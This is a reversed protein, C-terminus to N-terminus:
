GKFNVDLDNIDRFGLFVPFRPKDKMGEAQYKYKVLKGLLSEKTLWYVERQKQNFGTGIEFEIGTVCDRVILNGLTNSGSLNEKSHSRKTLGLNDKKAENNNHMLENFGIVFAESDKFQKLKLLIGEKETSRGFKYKGDISRVMLGEFGQDLFEKEKVLLENLDNVIYSGIVSIKGTLLHDEVKYLIENYRDSYGKDILFNDFIVYLFDPEGDESMIESSVQNFENSSLLILEGDLGDPINKLKEQVYRNRIPKLNRSVIQGDIKLARIGDLKPQVILPFKLTELNEIPSALIPKFKSM